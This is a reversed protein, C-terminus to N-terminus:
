TGRSAQAKSTVPRLCKSPYVDSTGCRSCRLELLSIAAGGPPLLILAGCASCPLGVRRAAFDDAEATKGGAAAFDKKLSAATM